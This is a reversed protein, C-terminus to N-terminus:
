APKDAGLSARPLLERAEASLWFLSDRKGNNCQEERKIISSPRLGQARLGCALSHFANRLLKRPCGLVGLVEGTRVGKKQELLLLLLRRYVPLLNAWWAALREVTMKHYKQKFPPKAAIYARLLMADKMAHWAEIEDLLTPDREEIRQECAACLPGLLLHPNMWGEHHRCTLMQRSMSDSLYPRKRGSM